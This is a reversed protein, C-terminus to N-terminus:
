QTVRKWRGKLKPNQSDYYGNVKGSAFHLTIEPANEYDDKHYM